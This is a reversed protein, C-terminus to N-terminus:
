GSNFHIRPVTALSNIKNGAREYLSVSHSKLSSVFRNLDLWIYENKVLESNLRLLSINEGGFEDFSIEFTLTHFKKLVEVITKFAEEARADLKTIANQIVNSCLSVGPKEMKLLNNQM